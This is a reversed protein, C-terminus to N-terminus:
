QLSALITRKEDDAKQLDIEFYEALLKEISYHVCVPQGDHMGCVRTDDEYCLEGHVHHRALDYQKETQLWELFEGIAQSQPHVEHMRDLTPTPIKNM